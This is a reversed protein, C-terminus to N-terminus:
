RGLSSPSFPRARHVFSGEYNQRLKKLKALAEDIARKAKASLAYFEAEKGKAEAASLALLPRVATGDTRDFCIAANMLFRAGVAHAHIALAFHHRRTRVHERTCWVLDVLAYSQHHRLRERQASVSNLETITQQHQAKETEFLAKTKELSSELGQQSEMALSKSDALAERLADLKFPKIIAVLMKM